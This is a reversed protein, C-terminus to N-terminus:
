WSIAFHMAGALWPDVAEMRVYIEKLYNVPATKIRTDVLLCHSGRVQTEWFHHYDVDDFKYCSPIRHVLAGYHDLSHFITALLLEPDYPIEHKKFVSRVTARLAVMFRCLRSAGLLEKSRLFSHEMLPRSNFDLALTHSTASPVSGYSNLNATFTPAWSRSEVIMANSCQHMWFVVDDRQSEPIRGVWTGYLHVPVHAGMSLFFMLVFAAGSAPLLTDHSTYDKPDGHYVTAVHTQMDVLATLREFGTLVGNPHQYVVQGFDFYLKNGRVEQFYLVLSTELILQGLQTHKIFGSTEGNYQCNIKQFYYLLMCLIKDYFQEPQLVLIHFTWSAIGIPTAAWGWMEALSEASQDRAILTPPHTGPHQAIMWRNIECHAVRYWWYYAFLLYLVVFWRMAPVHWVMWVLGCYHVLFLPRLCVRMRKTLKLPHLLLM